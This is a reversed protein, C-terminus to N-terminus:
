GFYHYIHTLDPDSNVKDSYSRSTSFIMEYIFLPYKAYSSRGFLHKIFISEHLGWMSYTNLYFRNSGHLLTAPSLEPPAWGDDTRWVRILYFQM